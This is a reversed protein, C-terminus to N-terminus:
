TLVYTAPLGETVVAPGTKTVGVDASQTVATTVSSSNNSANVDFSSTAVVATNVITVASGTNLTLTFQATVSSPLLNFACTVTGGNGASPTACSATPGVEQILSVFTTGPPLGDTLVVEQATDPGANSVTITYAVAASAGAAGSGSKTM